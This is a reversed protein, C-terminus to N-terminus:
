RTLKLYLTNDGHILNLLEARNKNYIDYNNLDGYNVIPMWLLECPKIMRNLINRSRSVIKQERTITGGLINTLNPINKILEAELYFAKSEEMEDFLIIPLVKHGNSLISEIKENKVPNIKSKKYNKVHQNLRDKNGKGIYFIEKTSEDMLAYVYFGSKSKLKIKINSARAARSGNWDIVYEECFRRQKDTLAPLSKKDSM